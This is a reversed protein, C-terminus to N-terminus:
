AASGPLRYMRAMSISVPSTAQFVRFGSLYNQFGPGARRRRGPAKYKIAVGVASEDCDVLAFPFCQPMKARVHRHFGRRHRICHSSLLEYRSRGARCEQAEAQRLDM